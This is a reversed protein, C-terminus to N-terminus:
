RNVNNQGFNLEAKELHVTVINDFKRPIALM